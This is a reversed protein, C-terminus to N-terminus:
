KKMSFPSQSLCILSMPLFDDFYMSFLHEWQANQGIEIPFLGMAFSIYFMNANLRFWFFVEEM